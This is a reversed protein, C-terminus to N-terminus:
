TLALTYPKILKLTTTTGESVSKNFTRELVWLKEDLGNKEDKVNVMTNVMWPIGNQTHGEVVYTAEFIKQQRIAMERRCFKELEAMSGCEEDDKLYLPATTLNKAFIKRVPTLESRFPLIKAKKAKYRDIIAQVGSTPIGNLDLGILENVMVINPTFYDGDEVNGTGKICIVSPQDTTDTVVRAYKVNNTNNLPDKLLTITNTPNTTFNPRGIVYGSGDVAAWMMFGFRKYTRDLFKWIGEDYHPKLQKMQGKTAEPEEPDPARTTGTIINFNVDDSYYLKYSGIEPVSDLCKKTIKELTLGTSFQVSPDMGGVVVRAMTDRGQYKFVTGSGVASAEETIKEIYGTFQVKDNITIQVKMGDQLIDNFDTEGDGITFAFEGTPKTFINTVSYSEWNKIEIGFDVLKLVVTDIESIGNTSSM